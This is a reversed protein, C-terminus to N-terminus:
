TDKLLNILTSTTSHVSVVPAFAIFVNLKDRFFDMNEALACFM